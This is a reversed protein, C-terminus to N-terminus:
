PCKERDRCGSKLFRASNELYAAGGGFGCARGPVAFGLEGLHWRPGRRGPFSAGGRRSDDVGRASSLSGIPV